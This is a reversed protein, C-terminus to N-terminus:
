AADQQGRSAAPPFPAPGLHLSWEPSRSGESPQKRGSYTCAYVCACMCAHVCVHLSCVCSGPSGPSCATHGWRDKRGFLGAAREGQAPPPPYPPPQRGSWPGVDTQPRFSLASPLLPAGGALASARKGSLLVVLWHGSPLLRWLSPVRPVRIPRLGGKSETPGPLAFDKIDAARTEKDGHPPVTAGAAGPSRASPPCETLTPEAQCRRAGAQGEEAEDCASTREKRNGKDSSCM